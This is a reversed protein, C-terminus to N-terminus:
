SNFGIQWFRLYQLARACVCSYKLSFSLILMVDNEAVEANSTQLSRTPIKMYLVSSTVSSLRDLGLYLSFEVIKTAKLKCSLQVDLMLLRYTKCSHVLM